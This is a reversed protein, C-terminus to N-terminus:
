AGRLRAAISIRELRKERKFRAIVININEVFLHMGVLKATPEDTEILDVLFKRAFYSPPHIRDLKKLLRQFAGIHKAEEVVQCALVQRAEEDPVTAVLQSAITLAAREGYYTISLLRALRVRQDM